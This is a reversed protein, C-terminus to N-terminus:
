IAVATMGSIGAIIASLCPYLMQRWTNWALFATNIEKNIKTFNCLDINKGMIRICFEIIEDHRKSRWSILEITAIKLQLSIDAAVSM